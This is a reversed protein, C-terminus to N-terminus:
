AKGPATLMLVVAVLPPTLLAALAGFFGVVVPTLVVTLGFFGFFGIRRHRGAYAVILSLILWLVLIGIM